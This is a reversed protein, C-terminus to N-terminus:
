FFFVAILRKELKGENDIEPFKVNMRALTLLTHRAEKKVRTIGGKIQGAKYNCATISPFMKAIVNPEAEMCIQKSVLMDHLDHAEKSEKAFPPPPNAAAM